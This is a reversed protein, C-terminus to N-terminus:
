PHLTVPLQARLQAFEEVLYSAVPGMIEALRKEASLLVAESIRENAHIYDRSYQTRFTTIEQGDRSIRLNKVSDIQPNDTLVEILKERSCNLVGAGNITIECHDDFHEIGHSTYQLGFLKIDRIVRSLTGSKRTCTLQISVDFM